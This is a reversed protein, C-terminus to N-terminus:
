FTFSLGTRLTADDTTLDYDVNTFFVSSKAIKFQSELTANGDDLAVDTDQYGALVTLNTSVDYSGALEYGVADNAQTDDDLATVSAFLGTKGIKHAVGFGYYDSSNIEDRAYTVGVGKYGVGVQYLDLNHNAADDTMQTQFGVDIGNFSNTYKLSNNM